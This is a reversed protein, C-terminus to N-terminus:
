FATRVPDSHQSEEMSFSDRLVDIFQSADGFPGIPGHFVTM